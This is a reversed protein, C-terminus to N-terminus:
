ARAFVRENGSERVRVSLYECERLRMGRRRHKSEKQDVRVINRLRLFDKRGPREREREREREGKGNIKRMRM